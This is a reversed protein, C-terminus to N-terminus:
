TQADTVSRLIFDGAREVRGRESLITKDGDRLYIMGFRQLRVTLNSVNVQAEEALRYLEPRKTSDYRDFTAV